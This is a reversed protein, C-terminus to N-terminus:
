KGFRRNRHDSLAAATAIAAGVAGITALIDRDGVTTLVAAACALAIAVGAILLAIEPRRDANM